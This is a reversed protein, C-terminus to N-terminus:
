TRLLSDQYIACRPGTGFSVVRGDGFGHCLANMQSMQFTTLTATKDKPNFFIRKEEVWQDYRYKRSELWIDYTYRTFEFLEKNPDHHKRQGMPVLESLSARKIADRDYTPGIARM